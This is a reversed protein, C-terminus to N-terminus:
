LGRSVAQDGWRELADRVVKLFNDMGMPKVIYERAGSEIARQHNAPDASATLVIVPPGQKKCVYVLFEWSDLKPVSLDLFILDPKFGLEILLRLAQEGDYAILLDAKVPSTRIAERVALVDAPSDEILLLHLM